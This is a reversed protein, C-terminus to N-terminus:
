PYSPNTDGAGLSSACSVDASACDYWYWLSFSCGSSESGYRSHEAVWNFDACLSLLVLCCTTVCVYCCCCPSNDNLFVGAIVEISFCQMYTGRHDTFFSLSHFLAECFSRVLGTSLHYAAYQPHLVLQALTHRWSVLRTQLHFLCQCCSTRPCLLWSSVKLPLHKKFASGIRKFCGHSNPHTPEVGFHRSITGIAQAASYLDRSFTALTLTSWSRFIFRIIQTPQKSSIHPLLPLLLM